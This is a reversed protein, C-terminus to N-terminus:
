LAARLMGTTAEDLVIRPDPESAQLRKIASKLNPGEVANANLIEVLPILVFLRDFLGPHPLVLRDTSMRATGFLLLDIDIERPGWRQRAIRGLRREISQCTELLAEPLLSTTLLAAANLFDPQDMVGWPPTSYLSSVKTLEIAPDANLATLAAVINGCRDGLNSGLGVAVEIMEADKWRSGSM